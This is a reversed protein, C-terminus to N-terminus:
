SLKAQSLVWECAKLIAELESNSHKDMYVYNELVFDIAYYVFTVKPSSM